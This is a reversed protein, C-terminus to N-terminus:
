KAAKPSEEYFTVAIPGDTGRDTLAEVKILEGHMTHKRGQHLSHRVLLTNATIDRSLNPNGGMGRAAVHALELREPIPFDFGFRRLLRTIRCSEGDRQEVRERVDAINAVKVAHRRRKLTKRTVLDTKFNTQHSM